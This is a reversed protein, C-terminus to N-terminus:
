ETPGCVGMIPRDLYEPKKLVIVWCDVAVSLLWDFAHPPARPTHKQAKRKLNPTTGSTPGLETRLARWFITKTM